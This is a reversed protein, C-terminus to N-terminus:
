PNVAPSSTIEGIISDFIDELADNSITGRGPVMRMNM